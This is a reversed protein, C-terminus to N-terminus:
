SFSLGVATKRDDGVSSFVASASRTGDGAGSVLGDGTSKFICFKTWSKGAFSSSSAVDVLLLNDRGEVMPLETALEFRTGEGARCVVAAGYEAKWTAMPLGRFVEFEAGNSLMLTSDRQNLKLCNPTDGKM